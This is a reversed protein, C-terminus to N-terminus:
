GRKPETKRRSRYKAIVAEIGERYLDAVPRNLKRAIGDVADKEDRGLWFSVRWMRRNPRPM